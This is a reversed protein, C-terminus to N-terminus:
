TASTSHEIRQMYDDWLIKAVFSAKWGATARQNLPDETGGSGLPKVIYELDQLTYVGYAGMGLILTSYVDIGSDGEGAFKKAATSEYWRVGYMDGIYYAAFRDDGPQAQGTQTTWESAATLDYKTNPHVLGIFRNGAQPFRMADSNELRRVAKKIETATIIDGSVVAGRTSRNNVRQVSTGASLVNSIRYDYTRAAQNGQAIATEELLPDYATLQVLDSMRVFSGVQEPTATLRTLSLEEPNPTVGETLTSTITPLAGVKRFEVTKGQGAPIRGPAGFASHILAPEATHLLTSSYFEKMTVSLGSSGTTMIAM